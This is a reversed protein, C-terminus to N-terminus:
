FVGLKLRRRAGLKFTREVGAFLEEYRYADSPVYLAGAGGVVHIRTMKLLPVNNIIAGNFHHIYHLEYYMNSIAMQKDLLQFSYLPNSYLWPDSQRLWRKDIDQLAKQNIYRGMNYTYLSKGFIGANITHRISFGLFDYDVDSGLTGAWGREHEITFTPWFSGVIIKRDPETIYRQNPTYSISINTSLKQHHPLQFPDPDDFWQDLFTKYDYEEVSRRDTFGAQATIFLGNVLETRYGLGINDEMIYNSVKLQNLYADFWNVSNFNRGTHMWFDTFKMPNARYRISFNGQPDLNKVGLNLNGYTSIFRGSKFRYFYSAYPGFRFGGVVHWNTLSLISSLFLWRKEDKRFGVGDYLIEALTIKNYLAEVSDKYEQSETIAKVSDVRRVMEQEDKTLPEPRIQQWYTTDREYAEQTTVSIENKFFKKPYIPNVEFETIKMVTNGSFTVLRGEKTKYNFEQRNVLWLTDHVNEYNLKLEFEDYFTLATKYIEFDLRNINWTGENIYINGKVSSNGKKRPTVEIKYVTKGNESLIEDLKFKYTLIATPALPSIMPTESIGKLYVLNEYFNFNTENFRPLYLGAKSGYAKYATREEKFKDPAEFHLTMDVELLNIQPKPAKKAEEDQFPDIGEEDSTTQTEAKKRRKEKEKRSIVETAKIYVHSKQSNVQVKFSDRHQSAQKMIEYAPDRKEAKVVFANLDQISTKLWVNKVVDDDRVVISVRHEEYGIATFVLTYEGQQLTLFYRGKQDSVTGAGTERVLINIFPIPVNNEDYVYGSINRQAIANACLVWVLLLTILWKNLPNTSLALYKM